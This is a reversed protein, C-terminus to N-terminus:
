GGQQARTRKLWASLNQPMGHLPFLGVLDLPGLLHEARHQFTNSPKLLHALMYGTYRRQRCQSFTLMSCHGLAVKASTSHCFFFYPVTTIHGGGGGQGAGVGAAETTRHTSTTSVGSFERLKKTALSPTSYSLLKCCCLTVALKGAPESAAVGKLQQPQPLAARALQVGVSWGHHPASTSSGILSCTLIM